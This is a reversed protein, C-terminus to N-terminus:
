ASCAVPEPAPQVSLQIILGAPASLSFVNGEIPVVTHAPVAMMPSTPLVSPLSRTQGCTQDLSNPPVSVGVAHVPESEKPEELSDSQVAEETAGFACQDLREEAFRHLCGYCVEADDFARAGCVPCVKM